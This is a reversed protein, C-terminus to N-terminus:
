NAKIIRYINMKTNDENALQLMYSGAPLNQINIQQEQASCSGQLLLQGNAGFLTYSLRQPQSCHLTLLSTTPNPYISIEASLPEIGEYRDIDRSTFPQQVGETFSETINVVTVAPAISTQVAVEGGSFSLSGEASVANGGCFTIAQQAHLYGCGLMLTLVLTSAKTLVPKDM